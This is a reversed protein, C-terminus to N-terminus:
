RNAEREDPFSLGAALEEILAEASHNVAADILEKVQIPSVHAVNIGLMLPLNDVPTTLILLRGIGDLICGADPEDHGALMRKVGEPLGLDDVIDNMVAVAEPPFNSGGGSESM